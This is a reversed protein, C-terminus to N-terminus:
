CNEAMGPQGRYRSALARITPQCKSHQIIIIYISRTSYKGNNCGAIIITRVNSNTVFVFYAFLAFYTTEIQSRANCEVPLNYLKGMVSQTTKNMFYVLQFKNQCGHM